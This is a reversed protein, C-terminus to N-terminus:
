IIILSKDSKTLNEIGNETILVMDEIRVGFKEPLYIGPEVTLIMGKELVSTCKPSFNPFEHIELGVGHGLAHGFCDGYGANSIINRAAKDIENCCKGTKIQGLATKQALLVTEYVKKQEDSVSGLAITRTMDSKYGDVDAGFDITIFDGKKLRYEGPVGHPLSSNKGGVFVIDFAAASAGNSRLYFELELALEKESRGEEIRGLIYEFADDTIKQAAKIKEIEYSNKVARLGTIIKNIDVDVDIINGLKENLRKFMSVSVTQIEIGISKINQKLCIENIQSLLDKQLIIELKDNEYRKSLEIYRSDIIFYAKNRTVILMGADSTDVGSLYYRNSSEIVLAADINDPLLRMFNELNTNKM